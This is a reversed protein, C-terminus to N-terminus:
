CTFKFLALYLPPSHIESTGKKKVVVCPRLSFCEVGQMAPAHRRLGKPPDYTRSAAARSQKGLYEQMGSITRSCAAGVYVAVGNLQM